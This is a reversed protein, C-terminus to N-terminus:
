NVRGGGFRVSRRVWRVSRTTCQCGLPRRQNTPQTKNCDLTTKLPEREVKSTTLSAVCHLGNSRALECLHLENRLAACLQTSSLQASCSLKCARLEIRNHEKINQEPRSHAIRRGCHTGNQGVQKRHDRRKRASLLRAASTNTTKRRRASKACLIADKPRCLTSGLYLYAFFFAHSREM